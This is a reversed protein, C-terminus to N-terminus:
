VDWVGWQPTYETDSSEKEQTFGVFGLREAETCVSDYEFSTVRRRLARDLIPDDCGSFFEPTYQRMLSLLVRDQLGSDALAHLVSISDRRCGPLVLHRVIVGRTLMGDRDYVPDGAIKVMELLSPMAEAFYDPAGSLAGSIDSSVYKMDTLFVDATGNLTRITDQREYGGTNWVVPLTLGNSRAEAVARIVADTYQTPSVLNVNHAGHAELRLFLESLEHETYERVSAADGTPRSIEHNQCFSCGLPCGCFFVAGSGRTGSVPPEEWMHLMTRAVYIRRTVGCMGRVSERDAGCRRPCLTCHTM